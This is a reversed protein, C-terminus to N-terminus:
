AQQWVSKPQHSAYLTSGCHKLFRACVTHPDWPMVLSCRGYDDHMHSYINVRMSLGVYCRVGTIPWASCVACHGSVLSVLRSLADHM